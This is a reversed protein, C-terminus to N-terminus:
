FVAQLGFMVSDLTPCEGHGTNYALISGPMATVNFTGNVNSGFVHMYALTAGWHENFNYIGGVKIEPMFQTRTLITNVSGNILGGSIAKTLDAQVNIRQSQVMGGGKVFLDLQNYRYMGGILVDLGDIKSTAFFDKSALTRTNKGYYGIGAEFTFRIVDSLSTMLGGAVRGGWLDTQQSTAFHNIEVSNIQNWTAAAEASVFPTITRLTTSAPGVTGAFSSQFALATLALTIIKKNM